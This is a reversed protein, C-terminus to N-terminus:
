YYSFCILTFKFQFGLRAVAPQRSGTNHCTLKDVLRNSNPVKQEDAMLMMSKMLMQAERNPLGQGNGIEELIHPFPLVMRWMLVQHSLQASRNSVACVTHWQSHMGTIAHASWHRGLVTHVLVPHGRRVLTQPMRPSSRRMTQHSSHRFSFDPQFSGPSALIRSISCRVTSVAVQQPFILM